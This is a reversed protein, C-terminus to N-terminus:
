SLFTLKPCINSFLHCKAKDTSNESHKRTKKFSDWQSRGGQGGQSEHQSDGETVSAVSVQPKVTYIGDSWHTILHKEPSQPGFLTLLETVSEETLESKM